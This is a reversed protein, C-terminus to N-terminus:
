AEPDPVVERICAPDHWSARRRMLGPGANLLTLGWALSCILNRRSRM